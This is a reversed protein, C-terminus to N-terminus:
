ARGAALAKLADALERARQYRDEPNKELCKKLIVDIGPPLHAKAVSPPRPEATTIAHAVEVVSSGKFPKEGTFVFYLTSGLSFLDARGDVRSSRFQEPAMFSPTGLIQGAQTLDAGAGTGGIRAIGFDMIKARGDRAIIINDPKIDRHVLGQAHAYDLAQALEIGIDVAHEFPIQQDALMRTLTTGDVFEMVIHPQGSGDKVLDHITVVGPHSLKGAARAEREFRYRFEDDAGTAGAVYTKMAVVRDIAPDRAKYVIGMAGRGLESIVEYRGIMQRSSAVNLLTEAPSPSPAQAQPPPESFWDAM